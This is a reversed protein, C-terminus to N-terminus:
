EFGGNAKKVREKERMTTDRELRGRAKAQAADRIEQKVRGAEREAEREAERAIQICAHCLDQGSDGPSKGQTIGAVVWNSAHAHPVHGKFDILLEQVPGSTHRVGAVTQLKIRIESKKGCWDCTLEIM